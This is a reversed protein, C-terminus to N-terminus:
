EKSWDLFHMAMLGMLMGEAFYQRGEPSPDVMSILISLSANVAFGISIGWCMNKM